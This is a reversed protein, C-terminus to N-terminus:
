QRNAAIALAPEQDVSGGIQTLLDLRMFDKV